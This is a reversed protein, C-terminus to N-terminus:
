IRRGKREGGMVKRGEGGRGEWSENGESAYLLVPM